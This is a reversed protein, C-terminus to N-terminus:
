AGMPRPLASMQKPSAEVERARDREGPPRARPVRRRVAPPPADSGGYGVDREAARSRRHVAHVAARDDRPRRDGAWSRVRDRARHSPPWLWSLYERLYERRKGRRLSRWTAAFTEQDAQSSPDVRKTGKGAGAGEDLRRLRYDRVFDRYRTRSSRPHSSRAETRNSMMWDRM